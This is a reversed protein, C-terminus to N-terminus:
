KRAREFNRLDPPAQDKRTPMLYGDPSLFYSDQGIFVYNNNEACVDEIWTPNSLRRYSRTVTWPHTFAHDTITIEDRLVNANARDLAIREHFVSANDYHLPIGSSELIRPGKLARTEVELTDYRGGGNQDIWKGISTGSYSPAITAPWDRGDTYIRRVERLFAFQIYTLEPTVIFELPQYAVMMRLMGTPICRAMPNYTQSGSAEEALHADWIARYEANLPPQQRRGSPQAPDFGATGMREWQGKWDPYKGDAAAAAGAGLAATVALVGLLRWCHM